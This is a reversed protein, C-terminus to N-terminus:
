PRAFTQKELGHFIRCIHGIHVWVDVPGAVDALKKECAVWARAALTIAEPHPDHVPYGTDLSSAFADMAGRCHSVQHRAPEIEIRLTSM